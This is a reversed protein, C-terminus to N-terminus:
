IEGHSRRHYLHRAALFLRSRPVSTRSLQYLDFTRDISCEVGARDGTM